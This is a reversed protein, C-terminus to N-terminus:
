YLANFAGLIRLQRNVEPTMIKKRTQDTAYERIQAPNMGSMQKKFFAARQGNEVGLARVDRDAKTIGLSMDILSKKLRRQVSKNEGRILNNYIM